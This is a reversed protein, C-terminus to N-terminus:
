AVLTWSTKGNIQIKKVDCWKSLIEMEEPTAARDALGHVQRLENDKVEVTVYPRDPEDNKRLFYIRTEGNMVRNVYSGVCHNLSSGERVLDESTVPTIISYDKSKWCCRLYDPDTVAEHFKKAQIEDLVLQYNREALDHYLKLSRPYREYEAGMDTQMRIYDQLNQFAIQPIQIGQYVSVRNILYDALQDPQYNLKRLYDLEQLPISTDYALNIWKELMNPNKRGETTEEEWAYKLTTEARNVNNGESRNYIVKVINGPLHLLERLTKGSLGYSYACNALEYKEKKLLTEVAPNNSLYNVINYVNRTHFHRSAKRFINSEWFNGYDDKEYANSSCIKRFLGKKGKAVKEGDDYIIIAEPRSLDIDAFAISEQFEVQINTIIAHKGWTTKEITGMIHYVASSYKHKAIQLKNDELFKICRVSFPCMSVDYSFTNASIKVSEPIVTELSAALQELITDIKLAESLSVRYIGYTERFDTPADYWRFYPTISKSIDANM